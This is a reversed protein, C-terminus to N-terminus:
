HFQTRGSVVSVDDPELYRIAPPFPDMELEDKNAELRGSIPADDADISCRRTPKSKARSRRRRIVCFISLAVVIVFVVAGVTIGIKAVTTFDKMLGSGWTISGSGDLLRPCEAM